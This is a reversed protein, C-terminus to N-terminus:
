VSYSSHVARMRLFVHGTFQVTVTNLHVGPAAEPEAEAETISGSLTLKEERKM